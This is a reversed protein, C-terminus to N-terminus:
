NGQTVFASAPAEPGSVATPITVHSPCTTVTVAFTSCSNITCETGTGLGTSANWSGTLSDAAIFQTFTNFRVTTNDSTRCVNGVLLLDLSLILGNITKCTGKAPVTFNVGVVDATGFSACLNKANANATLSLMLFLSAILAIKTKM